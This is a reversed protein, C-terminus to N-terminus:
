NPRLMPFLIVDKITPRNTLLMTLRDIGLGWGGTPPLGYELAVCYDTDVRHAEPDGGAQQAAFRARQDTPDNLETYANCLEFGNAFLEFRETLGPRSRHAKALPSMIMPHDCIFTPNVCLPELYTGVLKDLLRSTTLPPSCVIEREQCLNRLFQNAASDPSDANPQALSTLVDPPFTFNGCRQLDDLMSYRQFPPTFDIVQGNYHVQYSGNIALVLGSLLEETMTMIDTYDAYAMYFECTTFEPNHTTDIGENRFQKGMEFVREFGGIVLTKLYLEPAIRLYLDANLDNHHTVFPRASAGSPIRNMMPTEVEIFRRDTLYRRIHHIIQSRTVFVRRTEPNIILDLYRQRSRTEPDTIAEDPLMHLCPALLQIETPIISLEGRRTRAPHGIVGVIDGRRLLDNIQNFAQDSNYFNRRAMVQIKVDDAYLNYFYISAGSSARRMLRGAVRCTEPLQQDNTLHSYRTIFEPLSLDVRFSHPYIPHHQRYVQLAQQRNEFYDNPDVANPPQQPQQQQQMIRSQILPQDMGAYDTKTVQPKVAICFQDFPGVSNAPWAVTM